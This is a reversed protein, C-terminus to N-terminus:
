HAHQGTPEYKMWCELQLPPFISIYIKYFMSIVSQQLPSCLQMRNMFSILIKTQPIKVSSSLIEPYLHYNRHEKMFYLYSVEIYTYTTYTSQLFLSEHDFVCFMIIMHYFYAFILHNRSIM